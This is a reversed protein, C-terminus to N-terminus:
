LLQNRQKVGNWGEWTARQIERDSTTVFRGALRLFGLVANRKKVFYANGRASLGFGSCKLEGRYPSCWSALPPSPSKM